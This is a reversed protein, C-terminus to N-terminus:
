IIFICPQKNLDIKEKKWESVLKTRIFEGDGTINAAICLYIDPSLTSIIDELMKNNRYPTDMFIQSQKENRSRQELIKLKNQREKNEIPLYGNFAFNQGNLGSAMLAMFISSPGVLPVVKIGKQHALMVIVNGPDAICPLGADSILGIDNGNLCENLFGPIESEPTHKNLEYFCLEDIRIEKNLLKLYRRAERINEVIYFKIGLVLNSIFGPIVNSIDNSSIKNPILYLKSTCNEM